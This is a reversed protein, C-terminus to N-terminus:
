RGGDPVGRQQPLRRTLLLLTVYFSGLRRQVGDDFVDGGRFSFNQCSGPDLFPVAIVLFFLELCGQHGIQVDIYQIRGFGALM